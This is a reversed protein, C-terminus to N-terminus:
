ETAGCRRSPPAWDSTTTTKGVGGKLSLVAISYSGGCQDTSAIPWRGSREIRHGIGRSEHQWRDHPAVDKALRAPPHRRPAGSGARTGSRRTHESDSGTPTDPETTTFNTDTPADPSASHLPRIPGTIPDDTEDAEELYTM